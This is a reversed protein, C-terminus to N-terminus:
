PKIVIKSQEGIAKVDRRYMHEFYAQPVIFEGSVVAKIPYTIEGMEKTVAGYYLARDERVDYYDLSFAGKIEPGKERELVNEFGTPLLDVLVMQGYSQASTSRVKINVLITDGVKVEKIEKGDIGTLTKIVEVEKNLPALKGQDYGSESLAYYLPGKYDSDIKVKKTGAEILASGKADLKFSVDNNDTGTKTLTFQGVVEQTFYQDLKAATLLYYGANYTNLVESIQAITEGINEAKLNAFQAPFHEVLLYILQMGHRFLSYYPSDPQDLNTVMEVKAILNIAEKEDKLLKYSSAIYALALSDDASMKKESKRKLINQLEPEFDSLFPTTVTGAKTLLYIAYAKDLKDFSSMNSKLYQSSRTLLTDLDLSAQNYPSKKLELLFHYFYLNLFSYSGGEEDGDLPYLKLGGQSNLRMSLLSLSNKIFTRANKQIKEDKLLVYPWIRSLIQESCGYAFHELYTLVPKSFILPSAGVHLEVKRFEPYLLRKLELDIKSDKVSGLQHTSIFPGSPRISMSESLTNRSQGSTAEFDVIAEGLVKQVTMQFAKSADARKKIEITESLAAASKLHKSTKLLYKVKHSDLNDDMNNLVNLSIPFSDGPSAFLPLTPTLILDSRVVSKQVNVGIRESNMAVAIIRLGGNFDGPINISFSKEQESADLIGSWFAVPKKAKRKFPNLHGSAASGEDGGQGMVQKLVRYEPILQDLLQWTEVDLSKKTLFYSIPDPNKYKAFQLIGEDIAFLVIKANGQTSYKITQTTGSKMVEASELKIDLVKNSKDISFPIASYSLPSMFIEESSNSRLVTVNLYANGEINEPLRVKHVSTLSDIKIWQHTYVKEKEITILGAGLYPSKIELEIEEGNKYDSKDLKIMLEANRTLSRSLNGEGIISYSLSTLEQDSSNLVRLTYSGPTKSELKVQNAEISASSLSFPKKELIVKKLVSEYAYTGNSRQTLVNVYRNEIRELYLDKWETLKLENNIAIFSVVQEDDKKIYNLDGSTKHGIIKDFTSILANSQALVSRGGDKEFGESIFDLKFVNKTYKSLDIPFEAEGQENTTLESMEQESMEFHDTPNEFRFDSYKKFYLSTPSLRIKGKIKHQNAALGFLNALKIKVSLDKPSLWALKSNQNFDSTIKLKDPTFEQVKITMSGILMRSKKRDNQYFNYLYVTYQGTPANADLTFKGEHLGVKNLSAKETYFTNSRSDSVQIEVPVESLDAKWDNTKTIYSFRVEEGPRYIGRDSFLYAKIQDKGAVNREGSVEFNSFNLMRVYDDIKMYALDNDKRVIFAFPRNNLDKFSNLAPFVAHGRDDTTKTMLSLGNIAVLEVSADNIPAGNDLSQAFVHHDGSLDKKILVGLETIILLRKDSVSSSHDTVHLFFVGKGKKGKINRDIYDKFDIVHYHPSTPSFNPVEIEDEELYSVNAENFYYSNFNHSNQSSTTETEYDYKPGYSGQTMLHQVQEPLLQGIRLRYKKVNISLLSLKKDGRLNLVTGAGVFSLTQPFNPTLTSLKFDAQLSFGSASKIGKPIKIYIYSGIQPSIKFSHLKPYDEATEIPSFELKKATKLVEDTIIRGDNWNIKINRGTQPHKEYLPMEYLSLAGQITKSEVGTSPEMMFIHEPTGSQNKIVQINANKFHFYDYAGPIRVEKELNFNIEKGGKVSKANALITKVRAEIEPISINETHVYANYRLPDYFFSLNLKSSKKEAKNKGFETFESSVEKEFHAHDLPYNFSLETVVKRIKPDRPDEVFDIKKIEAKFPDIEFELQDEKLKYSNTILKEKLIVKYKEGIVWDETPTLMLTTENVWSWEGKITPKIVVTKSITKGIDALPAAAQNFVIRLSYLNKKEVGQADLYYSTIYPKYLTAVVEPPPVPQPRLFWWSTLSALLVMVGAIIGYKKKQTKVKIVINKFYEKKNTQKFDQYWLPRKYDFDGFLSTFFNHKAFLDLIFLLSSLGLLFYLILSDIYFYPRFFEVLLLILFIFNLSFHVQTFKTRLFSWLNKM